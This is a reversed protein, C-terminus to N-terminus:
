GDALQYRQPHACQRVRPLYRETPGGVDRWLMFIVRFVEVMASSSLAYRLEKITFRFFPLGILASIGTAIICLLIQLGVAVALQIVWPMRLAKHIILLYAIYGFGFLIPVTILPTVAADIIMYTGVLYTLYMAIMVFDGHAFNTVSMVGSVISLGLAILTYIAGMM